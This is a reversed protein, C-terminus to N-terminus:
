QITWTHKCRSHNHQSESCVSGQQIQNASPFLHWRFQLQCQNHVSKSHSDARGHYPHWFHSHQQPRSSFCLYLNLHTMVVCIFLSKGRQNQAVQYNHLAGQLNQAHQKPSEKKKSATGQDHSDMPSSAMDRKLQSDTVSQNNLMREPTM